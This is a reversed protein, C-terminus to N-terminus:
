GSWGLASEMERQSIANEEDELQSQRLQFSQIISALDEASFSDKADLVQQLSPAEEGSASVRLRKPSKGEGDSPLLLEADVAMGSSAVDSVRPSSPGRPIRSPPPTAPPTPQMILRRAEELEVEVQALETQKAM